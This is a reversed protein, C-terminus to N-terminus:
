SSIIELCSENEHRDRQACVAEIAWTSEMPTYVGPPLSSVLFQVPLNFKRLDSFEGFFPLEALDVRHYYGTERFTLRM